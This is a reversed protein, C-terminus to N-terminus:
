ILNCCTKGQLLQAADEMSSPYRPVKRRKADYMSKEVEAYTVRSGAEHVGTLNDFVTKTSMRSDAEYAAKKLETKLQLVGIDEMCHNHSSFLQITEESGKQRARAPCM